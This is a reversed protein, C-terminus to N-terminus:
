KAGRAINNFFAATEKSVPHPIIKLWLEYTSEDQYANHIKYAYADEHVEAGNATILDYVRDWAPGDEWSHVDDICAEQTEIFFEEEGKCGVCVRGAVYGEGLCALCKCRIVASVKTNRNKALM